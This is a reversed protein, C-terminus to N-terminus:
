KLTVTENCCSDNSRLSGLLLHGPRKTKNSVPSVRYRTCIAFLAYFFSLLSLTSKFCTRGQHLLIAHVHGFSYLMM